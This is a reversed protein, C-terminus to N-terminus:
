KDILLDKTKTKCQRQYLNNSVLATITIVSGLLEIPTMQYGLLASIIFTVIPVLNMFLSGNMPTLIKNGANWALVGIVGSFIAMYLIEYKVEYITSLSPIDIYGLYNGIFIVIISTINGLICTLTTYRLPSWDPFNEVGITYIVWALVSVTMLIIPLIQSKNLLFFQLDGKTIVMLVGIFAFIICILTFTTPKNKKYVWLVLVSVFPILAMLVSGLIAGSEGVMKQGAFVLFNYICFAMSGFFYLSLGKGEFKLKEKGEKIVLIISLVFAVILYRILTFFFPDIIKLASKAVPWQGGFTVGAIVCFLTGRFINNKKM